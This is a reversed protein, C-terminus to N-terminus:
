FIKDIEIYFIKLYKVFILVCCLNTESSCSSKMLAMNKKLNSHHALEKMRIYLLPKTLNGIKLMQIM